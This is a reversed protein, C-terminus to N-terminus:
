LYTSLHRIFTFQRLTLQLWARTWCYVYDVSVIYMYLGCLCTLFEYIYLGSFCFVYSTYMTWLFSPCLSRYIHDVFALLMFEYAYDESFSMYM